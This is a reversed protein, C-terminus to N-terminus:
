KRDGYRRLVPVPEPDPLEKMKLVLIKNNEQGVILESTSRDYYLSWPYMVGGWGTALTTLKNEGDRDVQLVTCSYLGGVFVTRNAAMTVGTSFALEKDQLQCLQNGSRDLTILSYGKITVYIRDGKDSIAFRCVNGTKRRYLQKLLCGSVSYLYIASLSGVYLNGHNYALGCCDHDLEIYRRRVLQKDSVVFFQISHKDASWVSVAVEANGVQCVDQPPGKLDKDAVLKYQFDMLKLSYNTNDALVTYGNALKSIGTIRCQANDSSTNIPYEEGNAVTYVQEVNDPISPTSEFVGFSEMSSLLGQLTTTPTFKIRYPERIMSRLLLEADAMKGECKKFQTFASVKAYKQKEKIEHTLKTLENQLSRYSAIDSQIARNIRKKLTNMQQRTKREIDDLMVNIEQRLEAFTIDFSDCAKDMSKQNTVKEEIAAQLM